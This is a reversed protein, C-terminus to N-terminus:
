EFKAVKLGDSRISIGLPQKDMPDGLGRLMDLPRYTKPPRPKEPEIGTACLTDLDIIPVAVLSDLAGWPKILITANTPNSSCITVQTSQPFRLITDFAGGASNFLIRCEDFLVLHCDTYIIVEYTASVFSEPTVELHGSFPPLQWSECHGVKCKYPYCPIPPMDLSDTRAAMPSSPWPNAVSDMPCQANAGIQLLVFVILLLTTKM